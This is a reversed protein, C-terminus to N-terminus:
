AATLRDALVPNTPIRHALYVCDPHTGKIKPSFDGVEHGSWGCKTCLWVDRRLEAIIADLSESPVTMCAGEQHRRLARVAPCLCLGRATPRHDHLDHQQLVGWAPRDSEVQPSLVM